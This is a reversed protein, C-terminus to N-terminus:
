TASWKITGGLMCVTWTLLGILALAGCMGVLAAKIVLPIINKM